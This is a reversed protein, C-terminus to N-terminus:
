YLYQFLFKYKNYVDVFYIYGKELIDIKMFIQNLDFIPIKNLRQKMIEIKIEVNIFLRFIEQVLITTKNRFIKSKFNKQNKESPIRSELIDKYQINYPLFM